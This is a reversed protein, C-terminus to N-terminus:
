VLRGARTEQKWSYSRALVFSTMVRRGQKDTRRNQKGTVRASQKREKGKKGNGVQSAYLGTGENLDIAESKSASLATLVDGRPGCEAGDYQKEGGWGGERRWVWEILMLISLAPVPQAASSKCRCSATSLWVWPPVAVPVFGVDCFLAASSFLSLSSSFRRSITAYKDLLLRNCQTIVKGDWRVALCPCM